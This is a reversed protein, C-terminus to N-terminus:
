RDVPPSVRRRRLTAVGDVAHVHSKSVELVVGGVHSKSAYDVWIAARDLTTALSRRVREVLDQNSFSLDGSISSAEESTLSRMADQATM